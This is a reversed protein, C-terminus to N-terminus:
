SVSFAPRSRSWGRAASARESCREALLAVFMPQLFLITSTEALAITSGFLLLSRVMQLGLRRALLVRPRWLARTVFFTFLSAVVYRAWVVEISPLRRGLWQGLCGADLLV